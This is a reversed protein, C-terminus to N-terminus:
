VEISISGKEYSLATGIETSKSLEKHLQSIIFCNIYLISVPLQLTQQPDPFISLRRSSLTNLGSMTWLNFNVKGLIWNSRIQNCVVIVLIDTNFLFVTYGM